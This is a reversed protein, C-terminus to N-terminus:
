QPDEDQSLLHKVSAVELEEDLDSATGAHQAAYSAIADHLISKRRQELLLEIARRAVETAPQKSRGAEEKLRNYLDESLPIHFNRLPSRKM